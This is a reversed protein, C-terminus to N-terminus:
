RTWRPAAPVLQGPTSKSPGNSSGALVLTGAAVEEEVVVKRGGGGENGRGRGEERMGKSSGIDHLKHFWQQNSSRM